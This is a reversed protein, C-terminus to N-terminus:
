LLDLFCVILPTGSAVFPENEPRESSKKRHEVQLKRTKREVETRSGGRGWVLELRLRFVPNTRSLSPILPADLWLDDRSLPGRLM